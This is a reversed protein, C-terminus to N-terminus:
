KVLVTALFGLTGFIFGIVAGKTPLQRFIIFVLIPELILISVISVVSVIWISQFAKFGFVYSVFLGFAALIIFPLMKLMVKTFSQSPDAYIKAGLIEYYISLAEALFLIGIILIKFWFSNM